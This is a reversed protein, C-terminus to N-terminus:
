LSKREVDEDEREEVQREALSAVTVPLLSLSTLRADTCTQTLKTDSKQPFEFCINIKVDPFNWRVWVSWNSRKRKVEM